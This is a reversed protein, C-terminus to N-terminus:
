RASFPGTMERSATPQSGARSSAQDSEGHSAAAHARTGTLRGTVPIHSADPSGAEARAQAEDFTM